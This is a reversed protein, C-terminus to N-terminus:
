RERVIHAKTYKHFKPYHQVQGIIHYRNGNSDRLQDNDELTTDIDLYITYLNQLEVGYSKAIEVNSENQFDVVIDDTYVYEEVTEGYV